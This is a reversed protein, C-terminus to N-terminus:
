VVEQEATSSSQSEQLSHSSIAKDASPRKKRSNWPRESRRFVLLTFASPSGSGGKLKKQPNWLKEPIKKTKEEEVVTYSALFEDDIHM